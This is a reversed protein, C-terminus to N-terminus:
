DLSQRSTWILQVLEARNSVDTKAFIRKLHQKVTNESIFARSAIEKTTLGESVLQAIEQERRTLVGWDPLQRENEGDTGFVMTVATRDKTSLRYSKVVAQRGTKADRVTRAVVRRNEARFATMAEEIFGTISDSGIPAEDPGIQWEDRASRNCFIFQADLDTVVVAQPLRDLAHEIASARYGTLEYRVARETALGLQESVFRASTLDTESFPPCDGPRAFNITGFLVGSVIIPAEMSHEFNERALANRAGCANWTHPSCVRSSDIPRHQETVFRLVPDDQRGYDEYDDLLEGGVTARVDIVGQEPHLEYLGLGDAPVVDGVHALYARTVENRTLASQLASTFLHRHHDVSM